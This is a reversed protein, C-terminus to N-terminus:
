WSMSRSIFLNGFANLEWTYRGTTQIQNIRISFYIPIVVLSPFIYCMALNQFKSIRNLRSRRRNLIYVRNLILLIESMTSAFLAVKMPIGNLFWQYFVVFYTQNCNITCNKVYGAGTVCVVVNCFFRSWIYTYIFHNLDKNLVIVLSVLNLIVGAISIFRIVYNEILESAQLLLLFTSTINATNIEKSINM